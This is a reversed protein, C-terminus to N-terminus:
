FGKAQQGVSGTSMQGGTYFQMALDVLDSLGNRAPNAIVPQNAYISARQSAINMAPEISKQLAGQAMQGQLGASLSKSLGSGLTGTRSAGATLAQQGFMAQPGLLAMYKSYLQQMMGQMAEPTLQGLANSTNKASIKRAQKAQKKAQDAGTLKGLLGM